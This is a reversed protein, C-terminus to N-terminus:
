LSLEARQNSMQIPWKEISNLIVVLVKHEKVEDRPMKGDTGRSSEGSASPQCGGDDQGTCGNLGKNGNIAGSVADRANGPEQWLIM